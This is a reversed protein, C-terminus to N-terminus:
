ITGGRVPRRLLAASPPALPLRLTRRSLAAFPIACSAACPTACAACSPPALSRHLLAACPPPARPGEVRGVKLDADFKAVDQQLAAIEEGLVKADSETKGLAASLSEIEERAPSRVRGKVHRASCTRVLYHPEQTRPAHRARAIWPWACLTRAACSELGVARRPARARLVGLPPPRSLPACGVPDGCGTPDGSEIPEQVGKSARPRELCRSSAAPLNSAKPM